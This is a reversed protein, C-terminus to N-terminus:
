SKKKQFVICREKNSLDRLCKLFFLKEEEFIEKVLEKQKSGIEVIFFGNNKLHYFVRKSIQRFCELGESGGDLASRPDYNKVTKDLDNFENTSIYPPNSVIIDFKGGIETFWNSQIFNLSRSSINFRSQNKMAVKLANINIDVGFFKGTVNMKKLELFLTILLCGSGVGLELIKMRKLNTNKVLDKVVDILIESEPRPDLTHANILFDRSFFERSGLIKSLPKGNIFFFFKKLLAKKNKESIKKNPNTLIEISKLNLIKSLLTCIHTNKQPSVKKCIQLIEAVNQNNNIM